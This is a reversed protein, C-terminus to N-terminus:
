IAVLASEAKGDSKETHRNGYQCVFTDWAGCMSVNNCTYYWLVLWKSNMQMKSLFGVPGAIQPARFPVLFLVVAKNYCTRLDVSLHNLVVTLHRNTTAPSSSCILYGEILYTTSYAVYLWDSSQLEIPILYPERYIASINPFPLNCSGIAILAVEFEVCKVM